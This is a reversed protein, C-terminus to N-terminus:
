FSPEALGAGTLISVSQPYREATFAAYSYVVLKVTLSDSKTEEFRMEMPTGDGIEFLHVDPARAIIIADEDEDTGLDTPINADTVVPLGHWQGVVQGYEAAEGIGVANQPQHASPLVLPRDNNDLQSTLWGWRRPHMFIVTAPMFRNANIRQIGDAAKKHVESLTQDSVTVTNTGSAEMLGKMQGNSGTGKIVQRDLKVGYAGILDAFTIQEVLTGRELSQRSVDQQGAITRVPVDVDEHDQDQEAVSTNEGDQVDADTGTTMKPINLTMGDDPLPVRNVTNAVPRGERALPAHLDTLFQPVVMGAFGGTAVARHQQTHRDLRQRADPDGHMKARYADALFSHPGDPRYVPEDRTVQAPGDGRHQEAGATPVAERAAARDEELEALEAIREDLAGIDGRLERLEAAEEDNLNDRQEAEVTDLVERVRDRKQSRKQRLQELLSM